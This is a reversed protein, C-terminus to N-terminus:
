YSPLPIRCPIKGKPLITSSARATASESRESRDRDVAVRTAAMKTYRHSIGLLRDAERKAIGYCECSRAELDTREVVAIRGRRCRISGAIQLKSAAAAVSERRVGMLEAIREQTLALENSERRDLFMLLWLCLQQEIAHHRNCVAIQAVQTVYAQTYLLLVSRMSGGRECELNLLERKIQYGWGESQVVARSPASDSGLFVEVSAFGEGGVLAVADARGDAMVRSISIVSTTPFYLHDLHMGPEYLVHGVPRFIPKLNRRLREWEAAPLAALLRNQPTSIAYLSITSMSSEGLVFHSGCYNLTPNRRM